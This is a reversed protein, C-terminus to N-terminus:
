AATGKTIARSLESLGVLVSNDPCQAVVLRPREISSWLHAELHKRLPVLLRDGAQAIGGALIIAAPEYAHGINTLLAGWALLARELHGAASQETEARTILDAFDTSGSLRLAERGVLEVCGINGCPCTGASLDVTTHGLLNGAHGASGRLQQGGLAIATGVGTGLVVLAVDDVGVAAGTLMEGALAARADNEVVAPAGFASEAWSALDRGISWSYKDGPASRASRGDSVIAPVAIAVVRIECAREAVEDSSALSEVRAILEAVATEVRELDRDGDHKLRSQAILERGRVLGIKINTGGFDICLIHDKM